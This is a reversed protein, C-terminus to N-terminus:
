RLVAWLVCLRKMRVTMEKPWGVVKKSQVLRELADDDICVNEVGGPNHYVLCRQSMM